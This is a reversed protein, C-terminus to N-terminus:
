TQTPVPPTPGTFRTRRAFLGAARAGQRQFRERRAVKPDVRLPRTIELRDGARLATDLQVRRGWVSLAAADPEQGAAFWGCVRLADAVTARAPLMLTAERVTRPAEAWVLTVPMHATTCVDM